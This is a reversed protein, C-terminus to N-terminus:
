KFKQIIAIIRICNPAKKPAFDNNLAILSDCHRIQPDFHINPWVTRSFHLATLLGCRMRSLDTDLFDKRAHSSSGGLREGDNPDHSLRMRTSGNSLSPLAVVSRGAHEAPWNM